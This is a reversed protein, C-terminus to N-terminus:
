APTPSPEDDLEGLGELDPWYAERITHLRDRTRDLLDLCTLADPVGAAPDVQDLLGEFYDRHPQGDPSTAVGDDTHEPVAALLSVGLGALSRLAMLQSEHSLADAHGMTNDGLNLLDDAILAWSAHELNDRLALASELAWDRDEIDMHDTLDIADLIEDPYGDLWDQVRALDLDDDIDIGVTALIDLWTGTTPDYLGSATLEFALRIAYLDDDEIRSAGTAPDDINYRYAVRPPLWMLPHWMFEARTGEWRRRPRGDPFTGFNTYVPLPVACLTSTLVLHEPIGAEEVFSRFRVATEITDRCLLLPTGPTVLSPRRVHDM